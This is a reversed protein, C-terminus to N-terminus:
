KSVVRGRQKRLSAVDRPLRDSSKGFIQASPSAQPAPKRSKPTRRPPNDSPVTDGRRSPQDKRSGAITGGEIVPGPKTSRFENRELTGIM